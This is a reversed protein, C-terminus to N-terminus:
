LATGIEQCYLKGINVRGASYFGVLIFVEVPLRNKAFHWQMGYLMRCFFHM